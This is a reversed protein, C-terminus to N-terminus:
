LSVGLKDSPKKQVYVKGARISKNSYLTNRVADSSLITRHKHRHWDVGELVM